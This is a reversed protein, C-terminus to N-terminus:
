DSRRSREEKLSRLVPYFQLFTNDHAGNANHCAFCGAERPFPQAAERLGDRSSFNFYAWGEEFREGDKLAIELGVFEGEFYGRESPPVKEGRSHMTMVLMTKEPYEGTRAFHEYSEPRIYVNHFMGLDGGARGESYGLGLSAGVFVWKLYDEPLLLAGDENYQPDASLAVDEGPLAAADNEAFVSMGVAVGALTAMSVLISLKKATM